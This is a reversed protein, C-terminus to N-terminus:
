SLLKLNRFSNIENEATFAVGTIGTDLYPEFFTANPTKVENLYWIYDDLDRLNKVSLVVITRNGWEEFKERHQKAYEAVAHCSQPIYWNDPIDKRVIVYMKLM